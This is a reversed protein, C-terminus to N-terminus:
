TEEPKPPDTQRTESLNKKPCLSFQRFYDALVYSETELWREASM